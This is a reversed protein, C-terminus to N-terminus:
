MGKFQADRKDKVEYVSIRLYGPREKKYRESWVHTPIGIRDDSEGFPMASDYKKLSDLNGVKMM